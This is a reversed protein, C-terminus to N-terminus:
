DGSTRSSRPSPDLLTGGTKSLNGQDPCCAQDFCEALRATLNSFEFSKLLKLNLDYPIKGVAHEECLSILTSKIESVNDPHVVPGLNLRVAMEATSGPEAITFLPKRAAAYDYIKGSIGYIYATEKPVRGIILLLVDAQQMYDLSAKRSVYGTLRVVSGCGYEQIYDEITRGDAFPSSKGVFIVELRGSLEPKDRILQGLALLFEKPSRESGLTGAHIIRLVSDRSEQEVLPVPAFDSPDFGNTITVYKTPLNSHRAVFDAKMGDTTCIVFRAARVCFRELRAHAKRMSMSFTLQTPNGVWADRFDLVLPRGTLRSLIAAVVHNTHTPGSSYIAHCRHKWLIWLGNVVALPLWLVRSDPVSAFKGVWRYISLVARRLWSPPPAKRADAVPDRVEGPKYQNRHVLSELTRARYVPVEAPVEALMSGDYFDFPQHSATLVVPAWGSQPLHQLFKLTRKTGRAGEPPFDYVVFLVSQQNM